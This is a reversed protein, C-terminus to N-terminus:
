SRTRKDRRVLRHYLSRALESRAAIQAPTRPVRLLDGVEHGAFVSSQVDVLRRHRFAEEIRSRYKRCYQPRAFLVKNFGIMFPVLAGGLDLYRLTGVCVGPWQPNFVDDAIVVGGEALTSEALRMDSLVIQETHGGDVSFLRIPSGALSLLAQPEVKTSDGQHVVLGVTSSWRRVNTHFKDIDGAGSKDVNLEQDGFVDIAVSSEEPRKLLHLAIFLKGHHVGIEAVSGTIGSNRQSSDLLKLVTLVESELWGRVLRHGVMRYTAFDRSM